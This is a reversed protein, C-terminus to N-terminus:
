VRSAGLVKKDSRAKKARVKKRKGYSIGGILTSTWGNGADPCVFRRWNEQAMPGLHGRRIKKLAAQMPEWTIDSRLGPMDVWASQFTEPHILAYYVRPGGPSPFPPVCSWLDVGHLAALVGAEAPTM